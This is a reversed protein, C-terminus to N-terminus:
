MTTSCVCLDLLLGCRLDRGARGRSQNKEVACHGGDFSINRLRLYMGTACYESNGLLANRRELVSLSKAKEEVRGFCSLWNSM